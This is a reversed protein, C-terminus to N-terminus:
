KVPDARRESTPPSGGRALRVSRLLHALLPLPAAALPAADPSSRKKVTSPQSTRKSGTVSGAHVGGNSESADQSAIEFQSSSTPYLHDRGHDARCIRAGVIKLPCHLAQERLVEVAMM